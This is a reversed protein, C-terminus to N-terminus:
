PTYTVTPRWNPRSSTTPGYISRSDGDWGWLIGKILGCCDWGFAKGILKKLKEIYAASYRTPYQKVKANILALTIKRGYTGWMYATETKEIKKAMEIFEAATMLYAM